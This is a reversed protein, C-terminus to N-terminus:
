KDSETSKLEDILNERYESPLIGFRKKFSRSFSNVNGFGCEEAVDKISKNQMLKLQSMKLRYENLYSYPPVGHYKKFLRIFHYTSVFGENALDQITIKEGYHNQIYEVAKNVFKEQPDTFSNQFEFCIIKTLIDSVYNSLIFRTSIKIQQLENLLEDFVSNIMGIDKVLIMSAKQAVYLASDNALFHIHKYTWTEGKKVQFKHHVRCDLLLVTNETCEFVKDAVTIIGRGSVTEIVEFSAIDERDTIHKDGVEYYGAAVVSFPVDCWSDDMLMEVMINREFFDDNTKPQCCQGASIKGFFLSYVNKYDMYIKGDSM